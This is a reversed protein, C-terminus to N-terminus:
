KKKRMFLLLLVLAGAGIMIMKQTKAKKDLEAQEKNSTWSGKTTGTLMSGSMDSSVDSTEDMEDENSLGELLSKGKQLLGKFKGKGKGEGSGAGKLLKELKGAGLM